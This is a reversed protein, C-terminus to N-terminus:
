PPPRRALACQLASELQEPTYPKRLWADPDTLRLREINEESAAFGGTVYILAFDFRQRMSLATAIGDLSGKLRLDMLVVDPPHAEAARLADVGSSATMPVHYGRRELSRKLDLALV